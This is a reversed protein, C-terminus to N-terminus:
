DTLAGAALAAASAADRKVAVIAVYHLPEGSASRRHFHREQVRIDISERAILTRILRAFESDSGELFDEKISFALWGGPVVLDYAAGFALAPMDGFGLAAVCTLADFRTAALDRHDDESLATLDVVRYDDYLSPRDREAAAAAEPLIDVGVISGVGIAALEEGVMGNGAGVDLATLESADVAARRLERELLGVVTGPSECGLHDYFLQEYLGPFSYVDGYDHFRIRREAGDVRLLCWEEDQDLGRHHEDPITIEYGTAHTAM